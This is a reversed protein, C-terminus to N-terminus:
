HRRGMAHLLQRTELRDDSTELLQSLSEGASLRLEGSWGGGPWSIREALAFRAVRPLDSSDLLAKVSDEGMPNAGSLLGSAVARQLPYGEIPSTLLQLLDGRLGPPSTSILARLAGLRRGANRGEGFLVERAVGAIVTSARPNVQEWDPEQPLRQLFSLHHVLVAPDELDWLNNAICELAAGLPAALLSYAALSREQSSAQPGLLEGLLRHDSAAGFAALSRGAATRLSHASSKSLVNRLEQLVGPPLSILSEPLTRKLCRLVECMALRESQSPGWHSFGRLILPASPPGLSYAVAAVESEWSSREFPGVGLSDGLSAIAGRVRSSLADTGDPQTAKPGKASPGSPGLLPAPEISDESISLVRDSMRRAGLLASPLPEETGGLSAVCLTLGLGFGLGGWAWHSAVNGLRRLQWSM